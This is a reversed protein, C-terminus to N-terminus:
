FGPQVWTRAALIAKVQGIYTIAGADYWGGSFWWGVCGWHQQDQTGVMYAPYGASPTREFLYAVKGEFCARQQALKYDTAFATSLHSLCAPDNVDATNQSAAVKACTSPYDRSKIQLIGLSIGNGVDGIGAQTWHTENVATARTIDEDFGWKCAGWKLIADTSGSLAGSVRQLYSGQAGGEGNAVATRYTNLFTASPM